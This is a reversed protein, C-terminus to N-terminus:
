STEGGQAKRSARAVAEVELMRERVEDAIEQYLLLADSSSVDWSDLLGPHKERFRQVTDRVDFPEGVWVEVKKGILPLKVAPKSTKVRKGQKQKLQVEPVIKDMGKHFMPIIIPEAGEKCHAIMKGVGVKFPGLHAEDAAFRWDQWIRGEPFIHCWSKDQNLKEWFFRFSPQNLSGSRDLPLTNGAAMFPTVFPAAFFVDETCISWRVKNPSIRWWPLIGCWLGPDDMISQHNSVSLLPRDGERPKEVVRLLRDLNHVKTRNFVKLFIGFLIGVAMQNLYRIFLGVAGWRHPGRKRCADIFKECRNMEKGASLDGMTSLLRVEKGASLDGLTSLLRPRLSLVRSPRKLNLLSLAESTLLFMSLSFLCQALHTKM